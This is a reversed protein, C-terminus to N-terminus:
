SRRRGAAAAPPDGAPQVSPAGGDRAAAAATTDAARSVYGAHSDALVRNYEAVPDAADRIAAAAADATGETATNRTLEAAALRRELERVTTTLKAVQETQEDRQRELLDGRRQEAVLGAQAHVRDLLADRLKIALAILGGVAAALALSLTVLAATM